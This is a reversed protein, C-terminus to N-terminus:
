SRGDERMRVLADAAVVGRGTPLVILPNVDLEELRNEEGTAFRALSLVADIAADVDGTPRGRYGNLLRHVKLGSLAAAVEERDTPLLLVARDEVLEALIGGAGIMLVLGAQPDRTIGLILEAVAGDAMREVIFRNAIASMRTVAESVATADTLGLAVGGAETKHALTEACAKVVVPYGLAEAAAVAETEDSVLASEPVSLGHAALRKKSRWEDLIRAHGARSMAPDLPPANAAVPRREAIFAAAQLAQLAEDLGQMPAIGGAMMRARFGPAMSEQLTSAVLTPTGTERAAFLIADEAEKWGYFPLEPRDPTDIVLMAADVEARLAETFCLRMPDAEGWIYTHYDLPNGIAVKDGLVSHLAARRQESFAPMELAMDAVRDAVLGAEGGSCSLSLFRRGSITPCIHLLKLTEMFTPLSEVRAIGYRRCFADFVADSGTMSSTHSVAIEAAKESRGNKLVVIPISKQAAAIAARSFAAMDGIGEIFLGIATIRDDTLLADILEPVGDKAQNGLSMLQAVPLGRDQMSLSIAVNGSQSIIAVGRDVRSGGHDDPWLAVGDLYNVIGYCNPGIVGLEGAAEILAQQRARGVEGVESFGSAYCAAGGAGKARLAAVAEITPDAPICIFAADPGEPLDEITRHCPIGAMKERKHNVAYLRGTFGIRQCEILCKEAERGGIAVVSEPRLLRELPSRKSLSTM